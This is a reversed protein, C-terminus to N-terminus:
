ATAQTELEWPVLVLSLFILFVLFVNLMFQINNSFEFPMESDRIGWVAVNYDYIQM